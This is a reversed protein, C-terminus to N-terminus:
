HAVNALKHEVLFIQFSWHFRQSAFKYKVFSIQLLRHSFQAPLSGKPTFLIVQIRFYDIPAHYSLLFDTGIIIDFELNLM